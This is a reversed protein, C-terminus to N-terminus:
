GKLADNNATNMVNPPYCIGHIKIVLVMHLTVQMQSQYNELLSICRHSQPHSLIICYCLTISKKAKPLVKVMKAALGFIEEEPDTNLSYPM